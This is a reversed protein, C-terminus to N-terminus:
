SGWSITWVDDDFSLGEFFIHHVDIGGLWEGRERSERETKAIAAALDRITFTAGDPADLLVMM